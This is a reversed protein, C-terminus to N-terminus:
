ALWGGGADGIAAIARLPVSVYGFRGSIPGVRGGGIGTGAIDAGREPVAAALRLGAGAAVVSEELCLM